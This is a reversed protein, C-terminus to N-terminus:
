ESWLHKNGGNEEPIILVNLVESIVSSSKFTYEASGFTGTISAMSPDSMVSFDVVQKQCSGCFRGQNVPSMKDWNEHCPESVSLQIAKSM